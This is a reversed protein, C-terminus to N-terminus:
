VKEEGHEITSGYKTSHHASLEEGITRYSVPLSISRDLTTHQHHYEPEENWAINADDNTRSWRTAVHVIIHVILGILIGFSISQTLPILIIVLFASLAVGPSYWDISQLQYMMLAATMILATSTISLPIVEILPLLFLSLVYCISTIIASVGTKGGSTIGSASEVAAIIPTCGLLSAIITGIATAIYSYNENEIHGSSTGFGAEMGLGHVVASLDTLCVVLLTCVLIVGDTGVNINMLVDNIYTDIHPLSFPILPLPNYIVIFYVITSLTISILVYSTFDYHLLVCMLILTAFSYYLDPNQYDIHNSLIIDNANTTQLIGIQQCAIIALLISIGIITSIKIHQPIFYSIYENISCMSLLLLITGCLLISALVTHTHFHTLTSVYISLGLGPTYVFPLNGFVASILTAVTSAIITSTYVTNYHLQHLQSLIIPNLLFIYTTTRYMVLGANIEEYLTTDRENFKFYRYLVGYTIINSEDRLTVSSSM